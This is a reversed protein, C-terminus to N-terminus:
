APQAPPVSPPTKRSGGPSANMNNTRRSQSHLYSRRRAELYTLKDLLKGIVKLEKRPIEREAPDVPTRAMADLAEDVADATYM